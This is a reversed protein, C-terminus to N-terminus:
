KRNFWDDFSKKKIRLCRKGLHMTEFEPDEECLSYAKRLSIGLILSIEEVTYTQKTIVPAQIDAM